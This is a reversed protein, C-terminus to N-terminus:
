YFYIQNKLYQFEGNDTKKNKAAPTKVVRDSSKEPSDAVIQVKKVGLDFKKISLRNQCIDSSDKVTEVGNEQARVVDRMSVKVPTRRTSRRLTQGPTMLGNTEKSVTKTDEKSVTKTDEKSVTKKNEKSVTKTTLNSVSRTMENSASETTLNSVSKATM